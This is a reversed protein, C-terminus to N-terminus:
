DKDEIFKGDTDFWLALSYMDPSPGPERWRNVLRGIQDLQTQLKANERELAQVTKDRKALKKTLTEDCALMREMDIQPEILDLPEFTEHPEETDVCTEEGLIRDAADRVTDRIVSAVSPPMNAKRWQIIWDPIDIFIYPSLMLPNLWHGFGDESLTRVSCPLGTRFGTVVFIDGSYKGVVPDGIKFDTM